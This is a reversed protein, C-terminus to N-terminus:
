RYSIAYDGVSICRGADDTATMTVTVIPPTAEVRLDTVEGTVTITSGPLTPARFTHSSSRIVGLGAWATIVDDMVGMLLGGSAIVGGSFGANRAVDEDIHVLNPDACAVSFRAITMRTIPGFVREPLRDGVQALSQQSNL